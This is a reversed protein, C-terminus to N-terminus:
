NKLISRWRPLNKNVFFLSNQKKLNTKKLNKEIEFKLEDSSSINKTGSLGRLPSLNLNTSDCLVLTKIGAALAEAAASTTSSAFVVGASKLLENIPKHSIKFKPKKLERSSLPCAPHPKIIVELNKYRELNANKLLNIMNLSINKLYDTVVLLQIKRNHKKEKNKTIQSEIKQYRLAESNKLISKTIGSQTLNKKMLPGNVTIIDPKMFMLKKSHVFIRADHFYRLDWFRVTSHPVGIIKKHGASKWAYILAQEWGMNEQLFLGIEQQPLRRFAEEFLNLFLLNKLAEKGLFSNKLDQELFVALNLNRCLSKSLLHITPFAIKLIKYFDYLTKKFVQFNYFSELFAHTEHKQRSKNFKLIKQKASKETKIKEDKVFIQLWNIPGHVKQFLRPLDGWFPSLHIEKKLEVSQLNFLYTVFTVRGSTNSWNHIGTNKLCKKTVYHHIFWVIGSFFLVVTKLISHLKGNKIKEFLTSKFLLNIKKKACWPKLANYIDANKSDIKIQSIKKRKAWKEFALLRLAEVIQPSKALNCKEAILSMWWFSLGPRIQLLELIKKNKAKKQSLDYIWKLYTKKIKNAEKEIHEPLSVSAIDNGKKSKEWLVIRKKEHKKNEPKESRNWIIINM